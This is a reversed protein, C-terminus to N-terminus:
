VTDVHLFDAALITTGQGALFARWTQRGPRPAPDIGVYKLIQWLTSPAVAYGLGVLEDHIRRYGWGTNDRAM